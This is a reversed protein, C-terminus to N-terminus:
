YLTIHILVKDGDHLVLTEEAIHSNGDSDTGIVTFRITHSGSFMNFHDTYTSINHMEYQDNLSDGSSVLDGDIYIKVDLDSGSDNIISWDIAAEKCCAFSVGVLVASLLVAAVIFANLRRRKPIPFSFTHRHHDASATGPSGAQVRGYAVAMGDLPAWIGKGATMQNFM